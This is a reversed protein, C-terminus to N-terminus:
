CNVTQALFMWMRCVEHIHSILAPGAWVTVLHRGGQVGWFGVLFSRATKVLNAALAPFHRLFRWVPQDGLIWANKHVPVIVGFRVGLRQFEYQGFAVINSLDPLLIFSLFINWPSTWSFHKLNRSIGSSEKRTFGMSRGSDSGKPALATGFPGWSQSGLSSVLVVAM